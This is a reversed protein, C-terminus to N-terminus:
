QSLVNTDIVANISSSDVDLDLYVTKKAVVDQGFPLSRIKIVNNPETTSFFTVPNIYGIQIEGNTYDVTGFTKNTIVKTDDQDMYYAYLNGFTDDEFFYERGDNVNNILLQFGTSGVVPSNTNIKLAQEFCVEYSAPTSVVIQFDKRMRLETLNRTISPDSDDIASVIRSYRAAGGFKDIAGEVFYSSLTKKVDSAITAADKLTAKDNYFVETIIELYLVEPDQLVVELSAIRFENLSTAIYTKTTNSLATGSTPKIVIFVRGYEPVDLEEGGYVYVDAAAPYIQRVLTEYDSAVVARNQASYARPARFKISNVSEIPAGGETKTADLITANTSVVAGTSSVLRGSYAFSTLPNIGNADTGKTVLYTVYIKAGDKLEKGFLGDGFTLEYKEEDIEELWYVNSFAGVKVLNNAREFFTNYRETPNMQVEVRISLADINKNPLIFRQNFNSKDVTYETNLFTGEYVNIDQFTGVGRSSVPASIPEVANFIFNNGGDGTTFIMGPLLEVYAPFGSPFDAENLVVEMTLQTTAATASTPVYGVARANAVVNDRITASALFSENAIMNTSYANLQAQYAILNLIVELNSGSFDYDTFKRTSKLYNILNLKIQEFDVDTLEIAGAM